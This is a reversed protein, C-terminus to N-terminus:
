ATPRPTLFHIDGGELIFDRYGRKSLEKQVDAPFNPMTFTDYTINRGEHILKLLTPRFNPSYISIEEFEGQPVSNIIRTNV